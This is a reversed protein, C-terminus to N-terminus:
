CPGYKAILISITSQVRLAKLSQSNKKLISTTTRYCIVLNNRCLILWTKNPGVIKGVEKNRCRFIFVIAILLDDNFVNSIQFFSRWKITFIFQNCTDTVITTLRFRTTTFSRRM